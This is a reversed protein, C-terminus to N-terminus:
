PNNILLLNKTWSLSIINTFKNRISQCIICGISKSHVIKNKMLPLLCKSSCTMSLIFSGLLLLLTFKFSARKRYGSWLLNSPIVELSFVTTGIVNSQPSWIKHNNKRLDQNSMHKYRLIKLSFHRLAYPNQIYDWKFLLNIAHTM